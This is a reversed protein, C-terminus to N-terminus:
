VIRLCFAFGNAICHGRKQSNRVYVSVIKHRGSRTIQKAVKAGLTGAGIFAWGFVESM